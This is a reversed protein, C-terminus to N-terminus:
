KYLKIQIYFRLYNNVACKLIGLKAVDIRYYYNVWLCNILSTMLYLYVINNYMLM